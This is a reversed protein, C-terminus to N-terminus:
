PDLCVGGMVRHCLNTHKIGHKTMMTMIRPRPVVTSGLATTITCVIGSEHGSGMFHGNQGRADIGCTSGMWDRLHFPNVAM